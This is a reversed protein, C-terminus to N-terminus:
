RRWSTSWQQQGSQPLRLSFHLVPAAKAVGTEFTLGSLDPWLWIRRPNAAM